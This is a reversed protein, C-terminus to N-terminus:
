RRSRKAAKEWQGIMELTLRENWAGLEINQALLKKRAAALLHHLSTPNCYIATRIRGSEFHTNGQLDIAKFAFTGRSDRSTFQCELPALAAQIRSRAADYRSPQM